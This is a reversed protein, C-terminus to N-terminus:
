CLGTFYYHLYNMQVIIIVCLLQLVENNDSGEKRM